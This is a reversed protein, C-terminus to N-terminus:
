DEAALDRQRRAKENRVLQVVCVVTMVVGIAVGLDNSRVVQVVTQFVTFALLGPWIWAADIQTGRDDDSM